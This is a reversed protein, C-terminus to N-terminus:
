QNKWNRIDWDGVVDRLNEDEITEKRKESLLYNGFNILDKETYKPNGLFKALKDWEVITEELRKTLMAIMLFALSIVIDYIAFVWDGTCIHVVGHIAYIAIVFRMLYFSTKKM